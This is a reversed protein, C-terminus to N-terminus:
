NTYYASYICLNKIKERPLEAWRCNVKSEIEDSGNINYRAVNYNMNM